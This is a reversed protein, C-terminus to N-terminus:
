RSLEAAGSQPTPQLSQNPAKDALMFALFVFLVAPLVLYWFRVIVAGKYSSHPRITNRDPMPITGRTWSYAVVGVFAGLLILSSALCYLAVGQFFTGVEPNWRESLFFSDQGLLYVGGSLLMIALAINLIVRLSNM